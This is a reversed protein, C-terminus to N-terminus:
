SMAVATGITRFGQDLQFNNVIGLCPTGSLSTSRCIEDGM